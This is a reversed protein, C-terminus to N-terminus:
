RASWGGWQALREASWANICSEATVGGRRATAIGWPLQDFDEPRHADTDIAILAGAALATRVHADRLDLRWDHANIELATGCRAAEAVILAIDPDLGDRRGILRGTPHGIVCVRPHRIARLLRQTAADRDQRLPAHPSAVVFDLLALVDDDYDLSGDALIDAESGALVCVDHSRAAAERVARAHEALRQPSLGNAQVSSRSHDTIAITHYALRRAHAIVEDISMVGDSATTHVHLDARIEERTILVPLARQKTREIIDAWDRLEPAIWTLGLAEYVSQESAGSEPLDRGDRSIGGSTLAGGQSSALAALEAWHSAPGTQAIWALGFTAETAAVFVIEIDGPILAPDIESMAAGTARPMFEEEAAAIVIVIRDVQECGRRAAGAYEARAIGQKQRVARVFAESLRVASGLRLQRRSRELRELGESLKAASKAGMRPLRELRGDDLAARLTSLDSVGAELWFRRATRPGLSPVELVEMIGQPVQNRLAQLEDLTGTALFSAVKAAMAKGIGPIAALSTAAAEGPPIQGHHLRLARAARTHAGVRFDDAGTLELLIALEEIAEAAGELDNM